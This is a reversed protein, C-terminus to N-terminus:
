KKIKKIRTFDIKEPVKRSKIFVKNMKKLIKNLKIMRIM